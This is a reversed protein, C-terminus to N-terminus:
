AEIFMEAFATESWRKSALRHAVTRVALRTMYLLPRLDSVLMARSLREGRITVNRAFARMRKPPYGLNILGSDAAHAAMDRVHKLLEEAEVLQKKQYGAAALEEHLALAKRLREWRQLTLRTSFSDGGECLTAIATFLHFYRESLTQDSPFRAALYQARAAALVARAASSDDAELMADFPLRLVHDDDPLRWHAHEIIRSSPSTRGGFLEPEFPKDTQGLDLHPQPGWIGVTPWVYRVDTDQPELTWMALAYGARTAALDRAAVRAGREITVLSATVRTDIANRRESARLWQTRPTTWDGLHARLDFGSPVDTESFRKLEPDPNTPILAASEALPVVRNPAALNALPTAVLWRQDPNSEADLMEIVRALTPRQAEDELRRVVAHGLSLSGAFRNYITPADRRVADVVRQLARRHEGEFFQEPFTMPRSVEGPAFPANLAARNAEIASWLLGLADGTKM